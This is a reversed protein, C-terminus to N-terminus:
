LHKLFAIGASLDLPFLEQLALLVKESALLGFL